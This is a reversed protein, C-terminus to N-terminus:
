RPMYLWILPAAHSPAIVADDEHMGAAVNGEDNLFYDFCVGKAGCIRVYRVRGSEYLINYGHGGHNLSPRGQLDGFPADAMLAFTDRRQNRRAHYRGEAWFGLEYGFDGGMRRRLKKLQDPSASRLQDLTVIEGSQRHDHPVGPCLIWRGDSLYGADSLIPAYVGAAALPGHQPATPLEGGHNESYQTLAQSVHRLNDQCTTVEAHFRSYSVAPFMVLLAAVLIAAAALFDRASWGGTSEGLAPAAMARSRLAVYQCARRALGVPPKYVVTDDELPDVCARLRELEDRLDPEALLREEVQQREDEELAGLLYGLLQEQIRSTM